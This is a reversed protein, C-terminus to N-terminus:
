LMIDLIMSDLKFKLAVLNMNNAEIKFILPYPVGVIATGVRFYDNSGFHHHLANALTEFSSSGAAADETLISCCFSSKFLDM